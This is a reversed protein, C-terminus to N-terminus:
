PRVLGMNSSMGMIDQLETRSVRDTPFENILEVLQGVHDADDQNRQRMREMTRTGAPLKFPVERRSSTQRGETVPPLGMRGTVWEEIWGQNLIWGEDKSLKGYFVGAQALGRRDNPDYVAETLFGFMEREWARGSEGRSGSAQPRYDVQPPTDRSSDGTLYGIFMHVLEHAISLSMLFLFKSWDRTDNADAAELANEIVKKNLRFLAGWKPDYPDNRPWDVRQTVGEGLVRDSVVLSPPSRRCAMLFKDVQREM